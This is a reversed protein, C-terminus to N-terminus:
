LIISVDSYEETLKIGDFYLEDVEESDEYEIDVVGDQSIAYHCTSTSNRDVPQYVLKGEKMVDIEKWCTGDDNFHYIFALIYGDASPEIEVDPDDPEIEDVQIESIWEGVLAKALTPSEPNVPSDENTCSTLMAVCCIALVFLGRLCVTTQNKFLKTTKM